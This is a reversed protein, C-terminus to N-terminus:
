GAIRISTVFVNDTTNLKNIQYKPITFSAKEAYGVRSLFDQKKFIGLYDAKIQFANSYSDTWIYYQHGQNRYGVNDEFSHKIYNGKIEILDNESNIKERTLGIFLFYGFAVIGLLLGLHGVNLYKKM